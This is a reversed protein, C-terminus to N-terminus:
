GKSIQKNKEYYEEKLISTSGLRISRGVCLKPPQQEIWQAVSADIVIYNYM